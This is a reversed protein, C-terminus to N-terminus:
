RVGPTAHSGRQPNSVFLGRTHLQRPPLGYRDEMTQRYTAERQLDQLQRGLAQEQVTAKAKLAELEAALERGGQQLM